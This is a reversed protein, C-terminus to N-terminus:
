MIYKGCTCEQILNVPMKQFDIAGIHLPFRNQIPRHSVHLHHQDGCVGNGLKFYSGPSTIQEEPSEVQVPPTCM